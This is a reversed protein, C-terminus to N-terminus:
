LSTGPRRRVGRRAMLVGVLVLLVGTSVLLASRSSKRTQIRDVNSVMASVDFDSDAAPKPTFSSVVVSQRSWLPPSPASDDDGYIEYVASKLHPISGTHGEYDCNQVYRDTAKLGSDTYRSTIGEISHVAWSRDRLFRFTTTNEGINEVTIKRVVTAITETGTGSLSVSVITADAREFIETELLESGFSYPLVSVLISQLLTQYEGTDKGHRIVTLDKSEPDRRFLFSEDPHIVGRGAGRAELGDAAYEQFDVRFFRDRSSRYDFEVQNQPVVDSGPVRIGDQIPVRSRTVRAKLQSNAYFKKLEHYADHFENLLQISDAPLNGFREAPFAEAGAARLIVMNLILM